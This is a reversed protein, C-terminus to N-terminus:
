GKRFFFLKFLVFVINVMDMKSMKSKEAFRIPMKIPLSKVEYHKNLVFSSEVFFSYNKSKIAKFLDRDIKNLDYSRFGSTADFNIKLLNKTFFYAAKTLFKRLQPWSNLSDRNIHRTATVLPCSLNLQIIDKLYKPHHTFDADMTVLYDYKQNYSYKIAMLHANGVGSKKPNIILNINKNLTQKKKILDLTGDNSNDDIFLIDADLKERLITDILPTVNSCENYTPIAILVRM